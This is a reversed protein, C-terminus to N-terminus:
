FSWGKPKAFEPLVPIGMDALPLLAVKTGAKRGVALCTVNNRLWGTVVRGNDALRGALEEPVHEVAGDILLLSFGSEGGAALAGQPSVVQLSGVLPELLAAVYGSGGDVLLARDQPTLKAEQLMMGHVEPSALFRGDGLAIPRDMYAFGRAADPVFDERRVEAMRRLVLEDNVGVPRLQSDIMARRAAELGARPRDDVITVVSNEIDAPARPAM